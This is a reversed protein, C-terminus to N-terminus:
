EPTTWELHGCESCIESATEAHNGCNRCCVDHGERPPQRERLELPPVIRLGPRPTDFLFVSLEGSPEAFAYEVEGLNRVGKLRLLEMMEPPALKRSEAGSLVIRGHRVVEAPHGDILAKARRWRWLALDVGKDALAILLIVLMAHFLPVEPSLMPDGVASGLAIVLLFEVLSMQAISRGGVWRLLSITWIWIIAVRVVIEFLLFPSAGGLFMRHLDFPVLEEM